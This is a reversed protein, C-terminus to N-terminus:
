QCAVPGIVIQRDGAPTYAFSARCEGSDTTVIAMNASKLDKIFSRGDYGVVFAGESGDIRGRSGAPIPKGNAGTFIVVASRTDTKSKFNVVVGSRDAPTVVDDTKEIEATVPLGKPDISIRNNGYSRLSPILLQGNKNTEGYPRNEYFVPVGPAGTDVVAFSDDIRNSFFVGNGLVAIAGDAQGMTRITGNSQEVGAQV